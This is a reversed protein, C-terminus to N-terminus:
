VAQWLGPMVEPLDHLRMVSYTAAPNSCAHRNVWVTTMGLEHAPALNGQSDDLLVCAEPPPDGALRLARQYALPEPKCAFGIARVDIIGAFCGALGLVEIVRSAHGADANTFIWRAQPLSTILLRLRPDPVLYQGLPLDHVYALYDDTDIHHHIQLGRMTTGYTQYYHRRLAPVQDEPLHVREVMFRNMREGIAEWLGNGGPYLTEDLDFFLTTFSM